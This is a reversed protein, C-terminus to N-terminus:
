KVLAEQFKHDTLLQTVAALGEERPAYVLVRGSYLRNGKKSYAGTRPEEVFVIRAGGLGADVTRFEDFKATNYTSGGLRELENILEILGVYENYFKREIM